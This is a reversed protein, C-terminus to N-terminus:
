EPYAIFGTKLGSKFGAQRYFNLTANDQRGTMLMVKYCGAQWAQQLAYQLVATGFGQGRYQPNTVVNEILGYTKQGRTLNPVLTLACSSVLRGEVELGFYPLHPNALISQWLEQTSADEPDQVPDDEHLFRYLRLLDGLDETQLRRINM